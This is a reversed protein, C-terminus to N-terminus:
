LEKDNKFLKTIGTKWGEKDTHCIYRVNAMKRLMLLKETTNHYKLGDGKIGYTAGGGEYVVIDNNPFGMILRDKFKGNKSGKCIWKPKYTLLYMIADAASISKRIAKVGPYSIEEYQIQINPWEIQLGQVIGQIIAYNIRIMPLLSELIRKLKELTLKEVDELLQFQSLKLTIKYPKIYQTAYGNQKEYVQSKVDVELKDQSINVIILVLIDSQVKDVSDSGYIM